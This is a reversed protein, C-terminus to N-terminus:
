KPVDSLQPNDKDMYGVQGKRHHKYKVASLIHLTSSMNHHSQIYVKPKCVGIEPSHLSVGSFNM